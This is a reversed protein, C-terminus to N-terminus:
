PSLSSALPLRGRGAVRVLGHRFDAAEEADHDLHKEVVVIRRMKMGLIPVIHRQNVNLPKRHEGPSERWPRHAEDDLPGRKVLRFENLVPLSRLGLPRQLSDFWKLLACNDSGRLGTCASTM